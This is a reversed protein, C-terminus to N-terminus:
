PNMRENIAETRNLRHYYVFLDLFDIAIYLLIM